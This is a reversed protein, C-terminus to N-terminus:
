DALLLRWRAAVTSPAFHASTALARARAALADRAGRDDHLRALAAAVADPAISWGGAGDRTAPLRLACDGWVEAPGSHDPVVQAAGTAAHELSVLGFGEAASTNIGVDCAGYILRLHEDEVTPRRGEYPTRILRDGIGLEAALRPVDCGGDRDGAHLYLRANPRGAAFRAFGRMTADVRKRWTNRNANLVLFAEDLGADAGFLRRRASARSARADGVALPRFADTDVGHGVVALPPLAVGLRAAAREMARRGYHTYLVLRDVSALARVVRPHPEPWDVPCYVVVRASPRRARYAALAPAHAACLAGDHHLLVVDPRLEALLGPLQAVGRLDGRLQNARVRYGHRDVDRGSHNVAFLTADLDGVLAALIGDLVRAYGTAILGQGVALLRRSAM